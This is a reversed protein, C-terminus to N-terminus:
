RGGTPVGTTPRGPQPARPRRLRAQSPKAPDDPQMASCQAQVHRDGHLPGPTPISCCSPRTAACGAPRTSRARSGTATPRGRSSAPYSATGYGPTTIPYRSGPRAAQGRRLPVADVADAVASAVAFNTGGDRRPGSTLATAPCRTWCAPAGAATVATRGPVLTTSSTRLRRCRRRPPPPDRRRGPRDLRDPAVAGLGAGNDGHFYENFVLNDQWAPDHRCGSTGASAPAGATRRRPSSRSSGTACTPPSRTWPSSSGSGTPYEITFDDGFFRHYRELLRQDGPLEAPVLGPRALQLQRRVHGTTSEAPEYDIRRRPHRRRRARLPPRPPPGSLARLGYPSLFESEDFLKAFLRELRDVGVVSLLLRESHEAM